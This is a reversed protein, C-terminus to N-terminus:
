ETPHTVLWDPFWYLVAINLLICLIWVNIQSEWTGLLAITKGVFNQIFMIKLKRKPTLITGQTIPLAQKCPPPPGCTPSTVREDIYDKMKIQNRKCSLHPSGGLRTARDALGPLGGLRPWIKGHLRKLTPYGAWGHDSEHYMMIAWFESTRHSQM